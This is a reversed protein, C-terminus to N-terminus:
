QVFQLMEGPPAEESASPCAPITHAQTERVTLLEYAQPHCFLLVWKSSDSINEASFRTGTNSGRETVQSFLQCGCTPQKEGM